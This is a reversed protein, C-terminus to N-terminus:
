DRLKSNRTLFAARSREPLSDFCRWPWYNALRAFAEDLRLELQTLNRPLYSADEEHLSVLAIALTKLQNPPLMRLMSSRFPCLQDLKLHLLTKPLRQTPLSVPRQRKVNILELSTLSPPLAEFMRGMSAEVGPTPYPDIHSLTAELATLSRPLLHLCNWPWHAIALTTIGEPFVHTATPSSEIDSFIASRMRLTLLSPPFSAFISRALEAHAIILTNLSTPLTGEIELRSSVDLRLFVLNPPLTTAPLTVAVAGLASVLDTDLHTLTKPLLDLHSAPMQSSTLVLKSLLPPWIDSVLSGASRLLASEQLETWDIVRKNLKMRTLSRPMESISTSGLATLRSTEFGVKLVTLERPLERTWESDIEDHFDWNLRNLGTPLSAARMSTWKLPGHFKCHTLGRPLWHFHTVLRPHDIFNVCQLSTLQPPGAQWDATVVEMVSAKFDAFSFSLSVTGEISTLSKPLLSMHAPESDYNLSLDACLTTLTSPLQRFCEAAIAGGSTDLGLTQLLPFVQGLDFRESDATAGEDVLLVEDADPSSIRLSELTAPLKSLFSHWGEGVSVNKMLRGHSSLTLHCLHDLELLMQPAFCDFGASGVLEAKTCGQSLRHQM